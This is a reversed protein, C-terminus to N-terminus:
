VTSLCNHPSVYNSSSKSFITQRGTPKRFQTGKKGERREGKGKHGWEKKNRKRERIREGNKEGKRGEIQRKTRELKTSPESHVLSELIFSVRGGPLQYGLLLSQQKGSSQCKRPPASTSQALEKLQINISVQAQQRSSLLETREGM